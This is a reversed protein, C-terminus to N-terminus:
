DAMELNRKERGDDEGVGNAAPDGAKDGTAEGVGCGGLEM